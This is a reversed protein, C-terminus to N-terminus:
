RWRGTERVRTLFRELRLNVLEPFEAPLYHTGTPVISLEAGRIREAMAKAVTVPTFFDQTGAMVLAPVDVQDLVDAADHAGLALLTDLYVDMDVTAWDRAFDRLIEVDVTPSVLGLGRVIQPFLHFTAAATTFRSVAAHQWRSAMLILETLWEPVLGGLVTGFPRGSTGNIAVVGAVREPTRRLLELAVQVGMSWGIPVVSHVHEADMVALADRAQDRMSLLAPDAPRASRYLGRYDWCLFRYHELLYSYQHRFALYTGGLGNALLITPRPDPDPRSAGIVQYGITTGDFSAVQRHEVPAWDPGHDIASEPPPRTM